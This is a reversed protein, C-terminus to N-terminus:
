YIKSKKECNINITNLLSNSNPKEAVFINSWPLVNAEQAVASSLCYANLRRFPEFLKAKKMFHCFLTVTRPSFFLVGDIENNKLAAKTMPSLEKVAKAKYLVIRRTEFGDANLMKGLEGARNSGAIHVLPGDEPKLNKKIMKALNEVNGAASMVKKYGLDRAADASADGVTCILINKAKHARALSRIGNASTILLAQVGKLNINLHTVDKIIMLNEIITKHGHKELAKALSKADEEPRTILLRM